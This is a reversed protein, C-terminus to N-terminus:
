RFFNRPTPRSTPWASQAGRPWTARELENCTTWPRMLATCLGTPSTCSDSCIAETRTGTSPSFRISQEAAEIAPVFRGQAMHLDAAWLGADLRTPGDYDRWVVEYRRLADATEGLIRRAHAAAVALRARVEDGPPEVPVAVTLAEAGASDGRMLLAEVQLYTALHQLHPSPHEVLFDELDAVIGDVGSSAAATRIRDIYDLFAAPELDGGRLGHFAAERLAVAAAAPDAADARGRWITHLLRHLSSQSELSLRQCITTAM